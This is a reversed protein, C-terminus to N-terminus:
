TKASAVPTAERKGVQLAPFPFDVRGETPLVKQAGLCLPPM